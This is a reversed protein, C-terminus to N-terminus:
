QSKVQPHQRRGTIVRVAGPHRQIEAYFDEVLNPLFPDLMGAVSRVNDADAETWGLYTQLEQYRLFLENPNM